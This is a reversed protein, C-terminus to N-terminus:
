TRCWCGSTRRMRQGSQRSKLLTDIFLTGRHARSERRRFFFFISRNFRSGQRVGRNTRDYVAGGSGGVKLLRRLRRRRKPQFYKSSLSYFVTAKHM